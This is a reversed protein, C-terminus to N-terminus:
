FGHSRGGTSLSANASYYDRTERSDAILPADGYPGWGGTAPYVPNKTARSIAELLLEPLAAAHVSLALTIWSERTGKNLPRSPYYFRARSRAHAPQAPPHAPASHGCHTPATPRHPTHPSHPCTYTHARRCACTRLRAGTHAHVRPPGCLGCLGCTGVAALTIPMSRARVDARVARVYLPTFHHGPLHPQRYWPAFRKSLPGHHMACAPLIASRVTPKSAIHGAHSAGAAILYSGRASDACRVPDSNGAVPAELSSGLGSQSARRLTQAARLAEAPSSACRAGVPPSPATM